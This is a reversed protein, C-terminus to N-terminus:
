RKLELNFGDPRAVQKPFVHVTTFFASVKWQSIKKFKEHYARVMRMLHGGQGGDGTGRPSTAQLFGM